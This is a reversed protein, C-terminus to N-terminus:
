TMGQYWVFIKTQDPISLHKGSGSFFAASATSSVTLSGTIQLNNTTAFYSGTEHFISGGGASPLNTLGSGNGIFSGSFLSASVTGLITVGQTGSGSIYLSGSLITNGNVDLTSRPNTKNLGFNGGGNWYSQSTPGVIFKLNPSDNNSNELYVGFTRRETVTTTGENQDNAVLTISSIATATPQANIGIAISGRGTSTGSGAGAGITISDLGARAVEGIGIGKMDAFAGDGIAVAGEANATTGLTASNGILVVNAGVGSTQRIGGFVNLSGTITGSGSIYLSGSIVQNGNFTNSGTIAYSSTQSNTVFSSTQSNTVFSSTASSTVFGLASIQTSGSVTGAPITIINLAHSATVAFSSTLVSMSSTQSNTVFSSTQSNTVFSSTQSNVVFSATASNAVVNATQAYSSLDQDGTNTGSLNSGLVTGTALVNGAVINLSGSINVSGSVTLFGNQIVSGTIISLTGGLGMNAHNTCYYYLTPTSNTVSIQTYAGASGPSGAITVGTSYNSSGGTDTSFRLPHSGGSGNSADSQDFKYSNGATLSISSTITGDLYYKNGGGPDVVTVAISSTSGNGPVVSGSLNTITLNDFSATSSNTLFSSTQSNVVFSSTQSNVVFSSTQSNTVFSATASSSIFGFATIQASSSITGSPTSGGGILFSATAAFSASVVTGLLLSATTAFSSSLVTMSSTQSNTVFSATASSTVFGFATIQASSSVTGAAASGGGVSFDAGAITITTLATGPSGGPNAVVTTGGGGSIGTLASGDGQFSGSFSGSFQSADFIVTDGLSSDGITLINGNASIKGGGMLKLTSEAAPLGIEVDGATSQDGLIIDNNSGSKPLIVLDGSGSVFIEGM